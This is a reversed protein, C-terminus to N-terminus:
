LDASRDGTETRLLPRRVNREPLCRGVDGERGQETRRAMGTATQLVRPDTQRVDQTSRHHRVHGRAVAEFRGHEVHQQSSTVHPNSNRLRRSLYTM